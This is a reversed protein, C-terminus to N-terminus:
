SSSPKGFRRRRISEIDFFDNNISVGGQQGHQPQSDQTVQIVPAWADIKGRSVSFYTEQLNLRTAGIRSMFYSLWMYFIICDEFEEDVRRIFDRYSTAAQYMPRLAERYGKIGIRHIKVYTEYFQNYPKDIREDLKANLERLAVAYEPNDCPLASFKSEYWTKRHKAIYLLALPVTKNLKCQIFSTDKLRIERTEPFLACVFKMATKLMVVTGRSKELNGDNACEADYGVADLNPIPEEDYVSFMVCTSRRVGGVYVRHAGGDTKLLTGTFKYPRSGEIRYTSTEM